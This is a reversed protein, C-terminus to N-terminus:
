KYPWEYLLITGGSLVIVSGLGLNWLRPLMLCIACSVRSKRERWNSKGNNIKRSETYIYLIREHVVDHSQTQPRTTEAM